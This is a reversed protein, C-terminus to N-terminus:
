KGQGSFAWALGELYDKAESPLPDQPKKTVIAENLVSEIQSSLDNYKGKIGFETLFRPGAVDAVKKFDQVKAMKPAEESLDLYFRALVIRDEVSMDTRDVIRKVADKIKQVPEKITPLNSKIVSSAISGLTPLKLDKLYGNYWAFGLAAVCILLRTRFDM